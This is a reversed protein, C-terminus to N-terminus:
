MKWIEVAKAIVARMTTTMWSWYKKSRAIKYNACGRLSCFNGKIFVKIDQPLSVFSEMCLLRKVSKLQIDSPQINFLEIILLFVEPTLWVARFLSNRSKWPWSCITPTKGANSPSADWQPPATSMDCQSSFRLFGPFGTPGVNGM